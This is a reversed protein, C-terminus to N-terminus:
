YREELEAGCSKCIKAQWHNLNQCNPCTNIRITESIWQDKGSQRRCDVDWKVKKIFAPYPFREVRKCPFEECEACSELGKKQVCAKIKCEKCFLFPLESNCGECIVDDPSIGINKALKEKLNTDNNKYAILYPCVGCYVGCPAILKSDDM